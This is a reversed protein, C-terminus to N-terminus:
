SLKRLADSVDKYIPLVEDLAAVEISHRVVPSIGCIGFPVRMERSKKLSAVLMALGSSAMYGVGTLDLVVKRPFKKLLGSLYDTLETATAVDLEGMVEVITAGDQDRMEYAM